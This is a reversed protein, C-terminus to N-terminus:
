LLRRKTMAKGECFCSANKEPCPHAKQKFAVETSRPLLSGMLLSPDFCTPPKTASIKEDGDRRGGGKLLQVPLSCGGAELIIAAPETPLRLGNSLHPLPLTGQQAVQRRTSVSTTDGPLCSKGALTQQGVFRIAVGHRDVSLPASIM